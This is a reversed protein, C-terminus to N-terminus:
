LILFKLYKPILPIDKILDDIFKLQRETMPYGKNWEYETPADQM